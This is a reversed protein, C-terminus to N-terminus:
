SLNITVPAKKVWDNFRAGTKKSEAEQTIEVWELHWDDSSITKKKTIVVQTLRGVAKAPVRFDDVRGQEFDDRGAKDLLFDGTEVPKEIEKGDKSIVTKM